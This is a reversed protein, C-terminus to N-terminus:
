VKIIHYQLRIFHRNQEAVFKRYCCVAHYDVLDDFALIRYVPAQPYHVLYSHYHAFFTETILCRVVLFWLSTDPLCVFQEICGFVPLGNLDCDVVVHQGESYAVSARELRNTVIVDDTQQIEFRECVVSAYPLSCAAVCANSGVIVFERIHANSLRSFLAYQQHRYALTKCINTFNCMIHASRKFFSNKLEYCMCNLGVLPGSQLIVTPLHVLLHHKPKLKVANDGTGYLEKFMKLHEAIMERLYSVMGPTFRRSFIIDVLESLHLLFIWNDDDVPVKDGVIAPLYKLLAWYQVAKMSPSLRHGPKELANLQPPKNRKDVNIMSWFYDVANRLHSITFYHKVNCLTYLICGVEVPIIGELVVHMIDLSYNKTVHFDPISNLSCPKKIGRSHTKSQDVVTLESLDKNYEAVTRIAFDAEYYKCQIDDQKAICMTCFHDSSFSEIFGFLGNLALNDCAVQALGVYIQKNGIIPFDGSFGVTGLYKMECVFKDMIPDFGYVKIDPTYALCLLHVNAFCSNYVDPLNKVVYYFVGVNHMTSQGRLPNTTGMGDYFLQLMITIKSKDSFLSHDRFRLGDKCESLVGPTCNDALLLEVYHKSTLLTRLTAEVSVYEFTDYVLVPQGSRTEFRDGLALTEPKVALPHEDFFKDQRYRTSLFGLPERLTEAQRTLAMQVKGIGDSSIDSTQLVKLIESQVNSVVCDLMNNCSEVISPVISYPISSNARLRAVLAIGETKLDSLCEVACKSHVLPLEDTIDCGDKDDVVIQENSMCPELQNTSESGTLNHYTKLHRIFNFIKIFTSRCSGQVCKIPCLLEGVSNHRQLHIQLSSISTFSNSCTYCIYASMTLLVVV